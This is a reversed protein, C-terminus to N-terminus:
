ATEWDRDRLLISFSEAAAAKSVLTEPIPLVGAREKEAISIPLLPESSNLRVSCCSLFIPLVFIVPLSAYSKRNM